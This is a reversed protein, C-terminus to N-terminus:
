MANAIWSAGSLKGPGPSLRGEESRVERVRFGHLDSTSSKGEVLPLSLSVLMKTQGAPIRSMEDSLTRYFVVGMLSRPAGQRASSKFGM